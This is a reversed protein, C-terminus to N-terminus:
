KQGYMLNYARDYQRYYTLGGWDNNILNVLGEASLTTVSASNVGFGNQVYLHFVNYGNASSNNFNTGLKSCYESITKNQSSTLPFVTPVLSNAKNGDAGKNVQAHKLTGLQVAKVIYELGIAGKEDVTQYEMGQEKEYGIPLTAGVFYRYYNTYNGGGLDKDNLESLAKASIKPVKNGYYDICEYKQVTLAALKTEYDAASPDLSNLNITPDKTEMYADPGYSMLIHGAPSYMYDFMEICKKFVKADNLTAATIAWAESKLSRWSETYQYLYNGNVAYGDDLSGEAKQDWDAVPFLIPTLNIDAFKVEDKEYLTTNYVTTTQNYDYTMFGQNSDNLYERYEEYDGLGKEYNQLILGEQYMRHIYELAEMMKDSTRGEALYGDADIYFYGNRSDYGRAGWLQALQLIATCRNVNKDRPYFPYVTTTGTLLQPNAKVCRLLAVMEDANYCADQGCFLDSRKAFTSGYVTDIYDRLAKTLTQGNKTSLKNQIDIIGNGSTYSVRVNQTGTGAANAVTLTTNMSKYYPKYFTNVYVGTDYSPNGDDLLKEVWDKRLIFMTEVDNYGDFYPAYFIQGASSTVTKEVLENKDLFAKLYPMSGNNIYPALDVFRNNNTAEEVIDTVSGSLVNVNNFDNAQFLTFAGSVSTAKEPTVDQIKFDLDNKLQTWAPKWDNIQYTVGDVKSRYPAKSGTVFRMRTAMTDYLVSMKVTSGNGDVGSLDVVTQEVKNDASTNTNQSSDTPQEGCATMSIVMIVSLIFALLVSIKKM